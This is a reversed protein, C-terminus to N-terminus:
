ADFDSDSTSEHDYGYEEEETSSGPEDAGPQASQGWVAHAVGDYANNPVEAEEETKREEGDEMEGDTDEEMQEEAEEDPVPMGTEKKAEWDTAAQIVWDPVADTLGRHFADVVCGSTHVMKRWMDTRRSLRRCGHCLYRCRLHTGEVHRSMQGTSTEKCVGWRCHSGLSKVRLVRRLYPWIESPALSEPIPVGDWTWVNKPSRKELWEVTFGEPIRTSSNYGQKKSSAGFKRPCATQRRRAYPKAQEARVASRAVAKGKGNPKCSGGMNGSSSVDVRDELKASSSSAESKTLPLPPVNSPQLSGLPPAAATTNLSFAPGEGPRPAPNVTRRAARVGRKRTRPPRSTVPDHFGCPLKSLQNSSTTAAQSVNPLAPTFVQEVDAPESIHPIAPSQDSSTVEQTTALVHAHEMLVPPELACVALPSVVVPASLVDAASAAESPSKSLAGSQRDSEHMYDYVRNAWEVQGGMTLFAKVDDRDEIVPNKPFENEDPLGPNSSM